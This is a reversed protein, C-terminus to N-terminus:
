NEQKKMEAGKYSVKVAVKNNVVNAKKEENKM